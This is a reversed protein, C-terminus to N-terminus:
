INFANAPNFGSGGSGGGGYSSQGRSLAYAGLAQGILSNTSNAGAIAAAGAATAASNNNNSVQNAYNTGAGTLANVAQVGRNSVDNLNGAYAQGYRQAEGTAYEDLGKLASGSNLLGSVAKNQTVADIGQQRDFQYGTSNLYTDLAAKSKAPDGGLGLFGNLEDGAAAGRNVYPTILAKNQGYTDRQLANNQNAADRAAKSASNVAHSSILSGGIAAVGGIVAAIIPM